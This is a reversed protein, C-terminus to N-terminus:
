TAWIHIQLQIELTSMEGLVHIPSSCLHISFEPWFSCGLISRTSSEADAVGVVEMTLIPSYM